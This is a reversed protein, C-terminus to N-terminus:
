EGIDSAVRRAGDNFDGVCGGCAWIRSVGYPYSLEDEVMTCAGCLVKADAYIKWKYNCTRQSLDPVTYSPVKDVIDKNNSHSDTRGAQELGNDNDILQIEKGWTKVSCM